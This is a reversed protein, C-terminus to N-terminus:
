SNIKIKQWFEFCIENIIQFINLWSLGKVSWVVLNFFLLRTLCNAAKNTSRKVFQIRINEFNFIVEITERTIWGVDRRFVNAEFNIRVTFRHIARYESSEIILLSNLPVLHRMNHVFMSIEGGNKAYGLILMDSASLITSVPYESKGIYWIIWKWDLLCLLVRMLRYLYCCLCWVVLKCLVIHFVRFNWLDRFSALNQYPTLVSIKLGFSSKTLSQANFYYLM